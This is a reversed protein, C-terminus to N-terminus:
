LPNHISGLVKEFIPRAKAHWEVPTGLSHVSHPTVDKWLRSNLRFIGFENGRFIEGNKWRECFTEMEKMCGEHSLIATTGPESILLKRHISDFKLFNFFIKEM